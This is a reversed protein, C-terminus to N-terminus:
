VDVNALAQRCLLKTATRSDSRLQDDIACTINKDVNHQYSRTVIM